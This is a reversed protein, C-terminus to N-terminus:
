KLMQWAVEGTKDFSLVHGGDLSLTVKEPTEEVIKAEPAKEVDADCAFMATLFFSTKEGKASIELHHPCYFQDGYPKPGVHSEGNVM